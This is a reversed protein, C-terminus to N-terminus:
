RFLRESRWRMAMTSPFTGARSRELEVFVEADIHIDTGLIVAAAIGVSQVARGANTGCQLTM